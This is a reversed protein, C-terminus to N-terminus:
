AIHVQEKLFKFSFCSHSSTLCKRIRDTIGHTRKLHAILTKSASAIDLNFKSVHWRGASRANTIM